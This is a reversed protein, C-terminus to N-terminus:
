SIIRVDVSRGMVQVIERVSSVGGIQLLEPSEDIAIREVLELIFVQVHHALAECPIKL